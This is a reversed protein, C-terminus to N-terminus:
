EDHEPFHPYTKAEWCLRCYTYIHFAAEEDLADIWALREEPSKEKVEHVPCTSPDHGDLPCVETLVSFKARLYSRQTDTISM